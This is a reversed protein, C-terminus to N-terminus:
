VLNQSAARAITRHYRRHRDFDVSHERPSQRPWLIPACLPTRLTRAADHGPADTEILLRDPPVALLAKAARLYGPDLVKGSFSFYAGKDALPKILEAPGGYSHILLGSEVIPESGLVDILWGWAKVCHVAVPRSYERALDLHIRFAEEQAPEPSSGKDRCLGTEGIGCPNARVLEELREAWGESADKVFWPHLGLFPIVRSSSAAIELVSSWDHEGTGNCAMCTVGDAAAEDIVSAIDTGPEYDTLHIHSDVLGM